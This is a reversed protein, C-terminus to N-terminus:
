VCSSTAEVWHFPPALLSHTHAHPDLDLHLGNQPCSESRPQFSLRLFSPWLLTLSCTIQFINMVLFIPVTNLCVTLVHSDFDSMLTPVCKCSVLPTVASPGRRWRSAVITRAPTTGNTEWRGSSGSSTPSRKRQEVEIIALWRYWARSSPRREPLDRPPPNSTRWKPILRPWLRQSSKSLRRPWRRSIRPRRLPPVVQQRVSFRQRLRRLPRVCNWRRSGNPGAYLLCIYFSYDM